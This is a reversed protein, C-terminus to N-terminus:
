LEHNEEQKNKEAMLLHDLKSTGHQFKKKKDPSIDGSNGLYFTALGMIVADSFRTTQYILLESDPHWTDMFACEVLVSPMKTRKLVSWTDNQKIGRNTLEEPAFEREFGDIMAGALQKGKESGPYHWMEYGTGGGANCHISVYICNNNQKWQGNALRVRRKLTTDEVSDHIIRYDQGIKQCWEIVNNAITRNLVGEYMHINKEEHYFRKGPTMYKQKNGSRPISLGGHGADILFIM